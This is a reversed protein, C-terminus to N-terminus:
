GPEGTAALFADIDAIAERVPEMRWRDVTSELTRGLRGRLETAALAPSDGEARVEPYDRHYVTTTHVSDCQRCVGTTVVIPNSDTGM